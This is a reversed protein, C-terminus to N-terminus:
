EWGTVVTPVQCWVRKLALRMTVYKLTYSPAAQGEPKFRRYIAAAAECELVHASPSTTPAAAALLPSVDSRHVLQHQQDHQRGNNTAILNHSSIRCLPPASGPEQPTQSANAQQKHRNAARMPEGDVVQEAGGQGFRHRPQELFKPLSVRTSVKDFKFPLNTDLSTVQAPEIKFPWIPGGANFPRFRVAVRVSEASGRLRGM